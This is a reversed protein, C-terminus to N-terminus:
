VKGRKIPFHKDMNALVEVASARISTLEERLEAATKGPGHIMFHRKLAIQADTRVPEGYVQRRVLGNRNFTQDSGLIRRKADDIALRVSMPALPGGEGLSLHYEICSQGARDIVRVPIKRLKNEIYDVVRPDPEQCMLGLVWGMAGKIDSGETIKWSMLQSNVLAVADYYTINAAIPPGSRHIGEPLPEINRFVVETRASPPSAWERFYDRSTPSLVPAVWTESLVQKFADAAASLTKISKKM